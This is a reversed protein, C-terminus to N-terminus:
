SDTDLRTPMVLATFCRQEPSTVRVARDAADYALTADTGVTATVASSLLRPSFGLEIPAGTTIGPLRVGEIAGQPHVVLRDHGIRVVATRDCGALAELLRARDVTARGLSTPAAAILMRYAPFRDEIPKVIRNERESDAFALGSETGTVRVEDARALWDILGPVEDRSVIFRGAQSSSDRTHRRLRWTAMWYRDTAAVTFTDSELDLAVVALPSASEDSAATEVRRLAAALEPGDVTAEVRGPGAPARRLSTIVDNIADNTRAASQTANDAYERLVAHADDVSGDLVCRMTDIPVGVERMRRIMHARRELDATYYRYGTRADVETPRLLGAEDYYRLTGPALDVARAFASITLLSDTM